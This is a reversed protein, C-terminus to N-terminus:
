FGARDPDHLMDSMNIIKDDIESVCKDMMVICEKKDVLGEKELNMLGKLTAIPGRIQHSLYSSYESLKKNKIQLDKTREDIIEELHHNIRDLNDKQRSVEGNLETLRKNTEAKRKVNAVLLGIVIMLLGAVVTSGWLLYQQNKQKEIIVQKSQLKAEQKHQLDQLEIRASVFNKYEVSDQEYIEKLYLLAQHYNNRKYELQYYTYRFDFEVKKNQAFKKGEQIYKEAEDFNHEAIYLDALTLDISAIATYNELEKAGENAKLLLEKAKDYEKLNFYTVGINQFCNILNAKDHAKEFMQRAMTFKALAETFDNKRLYVNGMNLNLSALLTNDNIKQAIRLSMKFYVLAKEYDNDRYLNGINNYVKAEGAKNNNDKFCQLANLYNDFARPQDYLYSYGIGITRYAEAKGPEYKLVIALKLAKQALAVTQAAESSRAKYAEKNLKIVEITDGATVNQYGFAYLPAYLVFLTFLGLYIFKM